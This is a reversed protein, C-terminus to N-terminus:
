QKRGPLISVYGMGAMQQALPNDRDLGLINMPTGIEWLGLLKGLAMFQMGIGQDGIYGGVEIYSHEGELPNMDGFEGRHEAILKKLTDADPDNRATVEFFFMDVKDKAALPDVHEHCCHCESRQTHALVYDALASM